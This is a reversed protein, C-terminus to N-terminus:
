GPPFDAEDLGEPRANRFHQLRVGARFLRVSLQAQSICWLDVPAPQQRPHLQERLHAAPSSLTTLTMDVRSKAARSIIKRSTSAPSSAIEIM